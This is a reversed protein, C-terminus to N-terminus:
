KLSQGLDIKFAVQTRLLRQTYIKHEIRNEIRNEIM